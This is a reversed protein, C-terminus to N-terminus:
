IYPEEDLCNIFIKESKNFFHNITHEQTIHEHIDHKYTHKRNGDTLYIIYLKFLIGTGLCTSCIPNTDMVGTQGPSVGRHMHRYM